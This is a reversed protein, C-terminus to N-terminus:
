DLMAIRVIDGLNGRVLSGEIGGVAVGEMSVANPIGEPSAAFITNAPSGVSWAKGGPNASDM